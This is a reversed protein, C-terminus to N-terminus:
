FTLNVYYSMMRVSGSPKCIVIKGKKLMLVLLTQLDGWHKIIKLTFTSVSTVELPGQLNEAHLM